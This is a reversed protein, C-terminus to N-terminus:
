IGGVPQSAIFVSIAARRETGLSSRPAIARSSVLIRARADLACMHERSAFDGYRMSRLADRGAGEAKEVWWGM